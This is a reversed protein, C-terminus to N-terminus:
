LDTLVVFRCAQFLLTSGSRPPGVILVLPHESGSECVAGLRRKEKRELMWDLPAVGVSLAARFLAGYAARNGSRLMRLLLGMPDSFNSYKGARKLEHGLHQTDGM